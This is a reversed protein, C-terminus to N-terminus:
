QKVGKGKLLMMLYEGPNNPKGYSDHSIKDYCKQCFRGSIHFYDRLAWWGNPGSKKPLIGCGDCKNQPYM